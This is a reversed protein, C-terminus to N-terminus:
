LIIGTGETDNLTFCVLSIQEDAAMSDNWLWQKSKWWQECNAPKPVTAAWGDRVQLCVEGHRLLLSYVPSIMQM